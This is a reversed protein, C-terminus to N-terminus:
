RVVRWLCVLRTNRSFCDEDAAGWGLAFLARWVTPPLHLLSLTYVTYLIMVRVAGMGDAGSM